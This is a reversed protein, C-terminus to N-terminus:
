AGDLSTVTSLDEIVALSMVPKHKHSESHVGHFGGVIYCTKKQRTCHNEVEVPVKINNLTIDGFGIKNSNIDIGYFVKLIWGSIYTTSGSGQFHVARIGCAPICRGYSFYVKFTDMICAYSLISEIQTTTSFKSVVHDIIDANKVNKSIEEKMMGFFDTWDEERKGIPETVVLKKKGKHDVFLHRLQEANDNVYKSFYISIMLWLDDPSLVIDEHNNYASMFSYLIANGVDIILDKIISETLKIQTPDTSSYKSTKQKIMDDINQQKNDNNVHKW